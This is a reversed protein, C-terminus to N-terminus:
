QYEYRMHDNAANPCCEGNVPTAKDWKEKSAKPIDELKYCEGDKNTPNGCWGCRYFKEDM